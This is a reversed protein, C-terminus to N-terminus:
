ELLQMYEEVDNFETPFSVPINGINIMKIPDGENLTKLTINFSNDKKLNITFEQKESKLLYKGVEIEEYTGKDVERNDIFEVFGKDDRQISLQIFHGNVEESQYFGKLKPETKCAALM